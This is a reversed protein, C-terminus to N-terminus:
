LADKLTVAKLPEAASKVLLRAPFSFTGTPQASKVFSQRTQVFVLGTQHIAEAGPLPVSRSALVLSGSGIPM